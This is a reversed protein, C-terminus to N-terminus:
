KIEDFQFEARVNTQFFGGSVGVERVSVNRFREGTALTQYPREFASTAADM